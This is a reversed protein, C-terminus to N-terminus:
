SSSRASLHFTSSKRACALRDTSLMARDAQGYLARPRSSIRLHLIRYDRFDRSTVPAIHRTGNVSYAGTRDAVVLAEGIASAAGAAEM